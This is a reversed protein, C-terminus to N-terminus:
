ATPAGARARQADFVRLAETRAAVMGTDLAPRYGAPVTVAAREVTLPPVLLSDYTKQFGNYEGATPTCPAAVCFEMWNHCDSGLGDGVVTKLGHGHARDLGARLRELSGFRKLKLKCYGVNRLTAARDIDALTCIPEDLMLPVPCAAAVAANGEWDDTACPQEFLEIGDASLGKAFRIGEEPSFGRNADLRLTAHGRVATQVLHVRRLDAEVDAGVKVKFTAVGAALKAEVEREIDPGDTASLPAVLPRSLTERRDLLRSGELNELATVAATVAVKSTAFQALLTAKAAESSQGVLGPLLACLFDWAGERTESSSGPSVHADAFGTRGDRDRIVVLFPEFELFTRYSLKYPSRLPLRLRRLEIHEILSTM